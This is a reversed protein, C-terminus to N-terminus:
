KVRFIKTDYYNKGDLTVDFSSKVFGVGTKSAQVSYTGPGTVKIFYSGDSDTVVAAGGASVSVGSAGHGAKDLVKGEIYYSPAISFVDSEISKIYAGNQAVLKLRVNGANVNPVLWTYRNGSILGSTVPQWSTGDVTYYIDVSTGPVVKGGFILRADYQIDYRDWGKLEAPQSTLQLQVGDQHSIRSGQVAVTKFGIYGLNDGVYASIELSKGSTGPNAVFEVSTYDDSFGSFYGDETKWFFFPEAGAARDVAYDNITLRYKGADEDLAEIGIDRIQPPAAGRDSHENARVGSRSTQCIRLRSGSEGAVGCLCVSRGDSKPCVHRVGHGRYPVEM